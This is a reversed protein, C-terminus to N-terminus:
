VGDTVSDERLFVQLSQFALRHVLSPAAKVETGGFLSVCHHVSLIVPLVIKLRM